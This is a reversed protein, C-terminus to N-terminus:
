DLIIGVFLDNKINWFEDICANFNVSSSSDALSPVQGPLSQEDGEDCSPADENVPKRIHM